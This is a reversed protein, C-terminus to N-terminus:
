LISVCIDDELFNGVLHRQGDVERSTGAAARSAVRRLEPAVYPLRQGVFGDVAQELMLGRAHAAHREHAAVGIGGLDVVDGSPQFLTM